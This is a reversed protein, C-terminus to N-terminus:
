GRRDAKVEASPVGEASLRTKRLGKATLVSDVLMATIQDCENILAKLPEPPYDALGRLVGLWYDTERAEKLAIELKSIFDDRSQASRAEAVNAGISTASSILQERARKTLGDDNNRVLKIVSIGFDLCRQELQTRM